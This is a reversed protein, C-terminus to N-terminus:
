KEHTIENDAPPSAFLDDWNNPVFFLAMDMKKEEFDLFM